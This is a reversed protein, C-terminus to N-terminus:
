VGFMQHPPKRRRDAKLAGTLVAVAEDVSDVVTFLNLDEPSIFGEDCLYELNVAKSWYDRGFLVLPVAPSRGTQILTLVEFLEDFTGFGGPFFVMACAMSVFWYKRVFFYNFEFDLDDSIFPNLRQEFPLAINLGLSRGGATVAGRNAAEMIGPGGGSCVVIDYDPHPHALAYETVGRAVDVAAQYYGSVRLQTEAEAIRRQSGKTPRKLGAQHRKADRLKKKLGRGHPVRASGFFVVTRSVGAIRLRHAPELFECLIRIVRGEPSQVFEQYNKKQARRVPLADSRPM